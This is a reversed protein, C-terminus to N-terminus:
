TWRGPHRAHGRSQQKQDEQCRCRRGIALPCKGQAKRAGAHGLGREGAFTLGQSMKAEVVQEVIVVVIISILNRRLPPRFLRLPRGQPALDKQTANGARFIITRKLEGIAMEVVLEASQQNSRDGDIKLTTAVEDGPQPGPKRNKKGPPQWTPRTG